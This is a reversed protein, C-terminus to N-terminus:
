NKRGVKERLGVIIESSMRMVLSRKAEKHFKHKGNFLRKAKRKVLMNPRIFSKKMTIDAPSLWVIVGYKKDSYKDSFGIADDVLEPPVVLSFYHPRFRHPDNRMYSKHKRGKAKKYDNKLDSKSCKIEYEYFKQKKLATVDTIGWCHYIDVETALYLVRRKYRLYACLDRKIISSCLKIKVKTKKQNKM